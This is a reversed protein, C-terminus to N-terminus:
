KIPCVEWLESVDIKAQLRGVISKIRDPDKSITRINIPDYLKIDVSMLYDRFKLGDGGINDTIKIWKAPIGYAHAAILGHLSSALICECENIQDIISEVSDFVNIVHINADPDYSKTYFQLQDVYHPIIGVKYKKEVNPCYFKPLLLAPDGYIEPCQMFERIRKRSLPGRVALIKPRHEILDKISALGSGWVIASDTCWNFISGIAVIKLVSSKIDVYIPSSGTIKKILWPNLKDGFNDSLCWWAPIM